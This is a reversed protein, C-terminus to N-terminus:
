KSLCIWLEAKICKRKHPQPWYTDVGGGQKNYAKAADAGNQFFRKDIQKGGNGQAAHNVLDVTLQRNIKRQRGRPATSHRAKHSSPLQWAIYEENKKGQYGRKDKFPFTANGHQWAAEKQAEPSNKGGIAYNVTRQIQAVRCYHRQTREPVHLLERQKARSIPNETKRGSHWAGYLHAQFVGIRDIAVRLPLAVPHGNLRELELHRAVATAGHLWLRGNNRTWYGGQGAAFIQKLRRWGFIRLKSQKKTLADRVQRVELWGRGYVDLHRCLLWVRYIAAETRDLAALGIDPYHKITKGDLPLRAQRGERHDPAPKESPPLSKVSRANRKKKPILGARRRCLTLQKQGNELIHNPTAYLCTDLRLQDTVGLEERLQKLRKNAAQAASSPAM